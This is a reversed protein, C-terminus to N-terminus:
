IQEPDPCGVEIARGHRPCFPAGCNDCRRGPSIQFPMNPLFPCPGLARPSPLRRATTTITPLLLLLLLLLSPPSRFFLAQLSPRRNRTTHPQYFSFIYIPSPAGM